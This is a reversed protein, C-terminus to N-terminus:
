NILCLYTNILSFHISYCHLCSGGVKAGKLGSGPKIKNEEKIDVLILISGKFYIFALLTDTLIFNSNFLHEISPAKLLVIAMKRCKLFGRTLCNWLIYCNVSTLTFRARERVDSRQEANKLTDSTHGVSTM